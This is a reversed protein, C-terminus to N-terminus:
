IGALELLRESAYFLAVGLFVFFVVLRSPSRAAAPLLDSAGVHLFTGTALGLLVGTMTPSLEGVVFVFVTGVVTILGIAVAAGLALGRGFGAARSVAAISFGATVEHTIVALFMLVGLSPSTVFGVGIAVGDFFDHINLGLITAAGVGPHLIVEAQRHANPNNQARRDLYQELLHESVFIILFGIIIYLAYGTGMELVEPILEFIAAALIFGGGLGLFNGMTSRSLSRQFVAMWGGVINAAATVLSLLVAVLWLPM